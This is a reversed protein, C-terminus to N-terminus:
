QIAGITKLAQVIQEITYGAFTDTRTITAGGGSVYTASGIATTPQVVPTTGWLGIKQTSTGGIKMGLSTGTTLNIGDVLNVETSKINVQQVAYGSAGKAGLTLTGVESGASGTGTFSVFAVAIRSSGNGYLMRLTGGTGIALSTGSTTTNGSEFLATSSVAGSANDNKYTLDRSTGVNFGGTGIVTAITTPSVVSGVTAGTFGQFIINSGLQINAGGATMATYTPTNSALKLGGGIHGSNSNISGAYLGNDSTSSRLNLTSLGLKDALVLKYNPVIRGINDLALNGAQLYATESSPFPRNKCTAVGYSELQDAIINGIMDHGLNLFHVADSAYWDTRGGTGSAALGSQFTNIIGNAFTTRYSQSLTTLNNSSPLEDLIFIGKNKAGLTYGTLGSVISSMNTTITSVSAGGAQDNLGGLIVYGKKPALTNLETLVSLWDSVCTGSGTYTDISNNLREQVVNPIANKLNTAYSANFRSDGLFLFDNGIKQKVYCSIPGVTHTGGLAYISHLGINPLYSASTVNRDVDFSYTLSQIPSISKNIITMSLNRYKRSVSVFIRNGASITIGTLTSDIVTSSNQGFLYIKGTKASSLMLGLTFSVSNCTSSSQIGFGVGHSTSNITGAIVTTTDTWNQYMTAGYGTNKYYNTLTPTAPSGGVVTLVNSAVTFTQTGVKTWNSLNTWNESWITGVEPLSVPVGDPLDANVLYRSSVQGSSTSPSAIFKNKVKSGILNFIANSDIPISPLLTRNFKKTSNNWVQLSDTGNSYTKQPWISWSQAQLQLASISTLISIIVIKKM